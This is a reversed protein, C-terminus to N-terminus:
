KSWHVKYLNDTNISAKIESNTSFVKPANLEGDPPVLPKGTKFDENKDTYIFNEATITKRHAPSVYTIAMDTKPPIEELVPFPMVSYEREAFFTVWPQIYVKSILSDDVDNNKLNGCWGMPKASKWIESAYAPNLTYSLKKADPTVAAGYASEIYGGDGVWTYRPGGSRRYYPHNESALAKFKYTYSDTTWKNYNLKVVGLTVIYSSAENKRLVHWTTIGSEDTNPLWEVNRIQRTGHIVAYSKRELDKPNYYSSSKGRDVSASWYEATMRPKINNLNFIKFANAFRTGNTSFYASRIITDQTTMDNDQYTETYTAKGCNIIIPFGDTTYYNTYIYPVSGINNPDNPFSTTNKFVNVAHYKNGIIDVESRKFKDHAERVLMPFLKKPDDPMICNTEKHQMLKSKAGFQMTLHDRISDHYPSIVEGRTRFDLMKRRFRTDEEEFYSQNPIYYSDKQFVYASFTSYVNSGFFVNKVSSSKIINKVTSLKQVFLVKDYYSGTQMSVGTVVGKPNFAYEGNKFKHSNFRYNANYSYFSKVRVSDAKVDFNYASLSSLHRVNQRSFNSMEPQSWSFTDKEYLGKIIKKVTTKEETRQAITKDYELKKSEKTSYPIFANQVQYEDDARFKYNGVDKWKGEVATYVIKKALIFPNLAEADKLEGYAFGNPAYLFADEHAQYTGYHCKGMRYQGSKTTWSVATTKHSHDIITKTSLVEVEEISSKLCSNKDISLFTRDITGETTVTWHTSVKRTTELSVDYVGIYNGGNVGMSSESSTTMTYYGAKITDIVTRPKRTATRSESIHGVEYVFANIWYHFRSRTAPELSFTKKGILYGYKDRIHSVGQQARDSRTVQRPRFYKKLYTTSERTIKYFTSETTTPVLDDYFTTVSFSVRARNYKWIATSGYKDTKVGHPDEYTQSFMNVRTDTENGDVIKQGYERHFVQTLNVNVTETLTTKTVTRSDTQWNWGVELVKPCLSTYVENTKTTYTKVKRYKLNSKYTETKGRNIVQGKYNPPMDTGVTIKFPDHGSM